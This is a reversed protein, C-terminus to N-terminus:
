QHATGCLVLELMVAARGLCYRHIQGEGGGPKVAMWYREVNAGMIKALRQIATALLENIERDIGSYTEGLRFGLLKDLGKSLRGMKYRMGSGDTLVLGIREGAKVSRRNAIIYAAHWPSGHADLDFTNFKYLDIIRLVRRNDAVFALREDRAWELDCGIYSDANRWVAHYMKGMGAFADFVHVTSGVADFVFQRIRVKADFALPSNHIKKAAKAARSLRM